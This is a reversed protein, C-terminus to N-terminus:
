PSQEDASRSQGRRLIVVKSPFGRVGFQNVSTVELHNEGDHLNWSFEGQQNKQTDTGDIDLEFHDFNPTVTKLVIRLSSESCLEPRVWLESQNLTWYFDSEVSSASMLLEDSRFARFAKDPFLLTASDGRKPHGKFYQNTMWDNRMEAIRFKEFWNLLAETPIAEVGLHVQTTNDDSSQTGRILQIESAKGGRAAKHLDLMNLPMGNKEFHWNLEVDFFVWKGFQNSWVELAGHDIGVLRSQYGVSTMVQSCLLPFFICPDMDSGPQYDRNDPNLSQRKLIALGDFGARGKEPQYDRRRFQSRTWCRLAVQADFESNASKVIQDLGYQKRLAHLRPEAHTQYQFPFNSRTITQDELLVLSLSDEFSTPFSKAFDGFRLVGLEASAEHSPGCSVAVTECPDYFSVTSAIVGTGVVKVLTTATHIPSRREVLSTTLVVLVLFLGLGVLLKFTTRKTFFNKCKM